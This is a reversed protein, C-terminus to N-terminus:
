RLSGRTNLVAKVEGGQEPVVPRDAAHLSPGSLGIKRVTQLPSKADIRGRRRLTRKQHLHPRLVPLHRKLRGSLVVITSFSGHMRAAAVLQETM